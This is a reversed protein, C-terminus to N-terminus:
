RRQRLQRLTGAISAAVLLRARQRAAAASRPPPGHRKLLRGSGHSRQGTYFLLAYALRQRTGLPWRAEFQALEDDTWTHHSGSKYATVKLALPNASIQGRDLAVKLMKQLVARTLNAMGPARAGVREIIGVLNERSM